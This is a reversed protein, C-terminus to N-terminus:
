YKGWSEQELWGWVEDLGLKMNQVTNGPGSPGPDNFQAVERVRRKSVELILGGRVPIIKEAARDDGTSMGTSSVGGKQDEATPLERISSVQDKEILDLMASAVEEPTVWEDVEEAVWRMKEPHDTWLPTKILGPAVATVRINLKQELPAMSRVFGNIGHKAANYLPTM